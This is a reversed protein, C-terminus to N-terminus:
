WIPPPRAKRAMCRAVSEDGETTEVARMFFSMRHNILKIVDFDPVAAIIAEIRPITNESFLVDDEVILGHAGGDALFTELAQIHSRYCAYEGPLIERGSLKRATPLDIETWEEKALARGDIAAIRQLTLGAVEASARLGSWRGTERDLNIAFIPLNM